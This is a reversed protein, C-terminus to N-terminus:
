SKMVVVVRSETQLALAVDRQYIINKMTESHKMHWWSATQSPASSSGNTHKQFVLEQVNRSLRWEWQLMSHIPFMKLVSYSSLYTLFYNKIM